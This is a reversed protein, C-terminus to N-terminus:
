GRWPTPTARASSPGTISAPTPATNWPDAASSSSPSWPTPGAPLVVTDAKGQLVLMPTTLPLGSPDNDLVQVLASPDADASFAEGAGLGGWSNRERLQGICRDDAQDVM